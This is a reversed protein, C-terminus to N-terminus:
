TQRTNAAHKDPPRAVLGTRESSATQMLIVIVSRQYPLHVGHLGVNRTAVQQAGTRQAAQANDKGAADLRDGAGCGSL